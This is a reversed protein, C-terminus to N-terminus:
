HMWFVLGAIILGMVLGGATCCISILFIEKKFHTSLLLNFKEEPLQRLLTATDFITGTEERLSNMHKKIVVPFLLTTEEMFVAKFQNLTKEGMFKYLLPFVKELKQQLFVDVHKEIVPKIKEFLAPSTLKDEITNPLEFQNKLMEIISAMMKKRNGTAISNAGFLGWIIVRAIVLGTLM